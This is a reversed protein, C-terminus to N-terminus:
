KVSAEDQKKAADNSVVCPEGQTAKASCHQWGGGLSRYLQVVAILQNRRVQVLELQSRFLLRESELVELYSSVGGEYRANALRYGDRAAAVLREQSKKEEALKKISILSDSVERLSQQIAQQYRQIAQDFRARVAQLNGKRKGGDFLFQFLSGGLSAATTWGGTVGTLFLAGAFSSLNIQPFFLAKAEGIRANAAILQQEATRIDPRRELLASPLDIPYDPALSQKTLTRGRPIPGPNQGMLLSLENEKLAIERELRPIQTEAVALEAESQRVDLLSIVGAKLRQQTLYLLKRRAEATQISIERELDLSRLEFYARAVDSVLTIIVTQQFDEQAFLEARSAESARRYRGWLDAEYSLSGGVAVFTRYVTGANTNEGVNNQSTFTQTGGTGFNLEPLQEGKKIRYLGRAEEIRAAAIKLDRNNELAAKILGQLVEDGFVEWWPLDAFSKEGEQASRNEGQDRFNQPLEVAPRRYNPGVACAPFFTM